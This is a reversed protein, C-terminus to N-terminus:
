SVVTVPKQHGVRKNKGCGVRKNKDEDNMM